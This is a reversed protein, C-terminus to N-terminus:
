EVKNLENKLSAEKQEYFTKFYNAMDVFRLYSFELGDSCEKNEEAIEYKQSEYNELSQDFYGCKGCKSSGCKSSCNPNVM